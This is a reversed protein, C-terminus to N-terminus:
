VSRVEKMALALRDWMEQDHENKIYDLNALQERTVLLGMGPSLTKMTDANFLLESLQGEDEIHAALWRERLQPIDMVRDVTAPFVQVGVWMTCVFFLKDGAKISM